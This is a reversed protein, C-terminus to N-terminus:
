GKELSLIASDSLGRTFANPPAPRLKHRRRLYREFHVYIESRTLNMKQEAFPDMVATRSRVPKEATFRGTIFDVAAGTLTSIYLIYDERHATILLPAPRFLVHHRRGGAAFTAGGAIGTDIRCMPIEEERLYTVFDDMLQRFPLRRGAVEVPHADWHEALVPAAADLAEPSHVWEHNNRGAFGAAAAASLASDRNRNPFFIPFAAEMLEVDVAEEDFITRLDYMATVLHLFPADNRSIALTIEHKPDITM